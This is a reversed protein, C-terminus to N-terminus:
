SARSPMLGPTKKRIELAVLTESELVGDIAAIEERLLQTLERTSSVTVGIMIDYRGTVIAVLYVPAKAVLQEVVSDVDKLRVNLGVLASTGFGMKEADPVGVIKVVGEKLLRSIRRMVTTKSTGLKRALEVHTRYADQQLESVLKRDLDDM